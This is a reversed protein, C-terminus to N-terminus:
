AAKQERFVNEGEIKRRFIFTKDQYRCKLKTYMYIKRKQCHSCILPNLGTKKIQLNEWNEPAENESIETKSQETEKYIYEQPISVRNSYSAYYRVLRFYPLPVHQLLRPFFDRYNLELEREIPKNNIDKTKNDKYRFKINEGEMKTIKYESLCARKSYRGIYRVVQTPIDMPKELHINWKKKNIRKIFQQFKIRDSFHHNLTGNDFMKFLEDEFKCRFKKKLFDYNVHKGKIQKMKKTKIDLGGWSVIMHTHVHYKKTEGFTHLVSIIGPKLNHKHKMWDKMTDASTRMLVSLLEYKNDKILANLQHPLTFITHRHPISMMQGKIRDAWKLTDQWSCTPCFRNKCSHYVKTIEGCEPCVYYDVGLAETRCVRIANVAKYQEPTIYEKPSQKYIDWWQDFFDALRYKKGNYWTKENTSHKCM